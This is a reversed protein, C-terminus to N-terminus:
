IMLLAPNQCKKAAAKKKGCQKKCYGVIKLDKIKDLNLDFHKKVKYLVMCDNFDLNNTYYVKLIIPMSYKSKCKCYCYYLAHLGCGDTSFNQLQKTNFEIQLKSNNKLYNVFYLNSYPTLALSDFIELDFKSLYFFVCWHEGKETDPETNVIIFGPYNNLNGPIKNAAFVGNFYSKTQLNNNLLRSLLASDM